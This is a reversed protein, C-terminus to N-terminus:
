LSCSVGHGTLDLLVNIFYDQEWSRMEYVAKITVKAQQETTGPAAGSSVLQYNHSTGLQQLVANIGLPTHASGIGQISVDEVRLSHGLGQQPVIVVNGSSDRISISQPAALGLGKVTEECAKANRLLSSANTKLSAWAAGRHIAQQQLQGAVLLQMFAMMTISTILSAIVAGVLMNGRRNRGLHRLLLQNALLDRQAQERRKYDDQRNIQNILYLLFLGFVCTPLFILYIM